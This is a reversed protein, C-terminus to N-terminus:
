VNGSGMDKAKRYAEDIDGVMFFASEPLHDAEGGLIATFSRITDSLPVFRGPRGTFAEAV